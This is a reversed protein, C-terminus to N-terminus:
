SQEIQGAGSVHNYLLYFVGEVRCGVYAEAPPFLPDYPILLSDEHRELEAPDDQWYFQCEIGHEVRESGACSPYEHPDELVAEGQCPQWQIGPSQDDLLYPSLEGELLPIYRLGVMSYDMQRFRMRPESRNPYVIEFLDPEADPWVGHIFEAYHVMRGRSYIIYSDGGYINLVLVQVEPLRAEALYARVALSCRTCHDDHWDLTLLM